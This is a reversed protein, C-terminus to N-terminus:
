SVRRLRYFEVRDVGGQGWTMPKRTTIIAHMLKLENLAEYLERASSDLETRLDKFNVSRERRLIAIIQQQLETM